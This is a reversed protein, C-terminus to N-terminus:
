LGYDSLVQKMGGRIEDVKSADYVVSLDKSLLFYAIRVSILDREEASQLFEVVHEPLEFWEGHVRYEQLAKHLERETSCETEIENLVEIPYPCGTQLEKVRKSVDASWGIKIRPTGKAIIIYVAM